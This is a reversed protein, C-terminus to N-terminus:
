GEREEYMECKKERKCDYICDCCEGGCEMRWTNNRGRLYIMGKEETLYCGDFNWMGNKSTRITPLREYTEVRTVYGLSKWEHPRHYACLRKEMAMKMYGRVETETLREKIIRETGTLKSVPNTFRHEANYNSM